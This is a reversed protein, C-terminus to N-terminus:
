KNKLNESMLTGMDHKIIYSALIDIMDDIEESTPSIKGFGKLIEIAKLRISKPTFGRVENM